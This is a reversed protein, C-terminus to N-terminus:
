PSIIREYRGRHFVDDLTNFALELVILLVLAEPLVLVPMLSSMTAGALASTSRDCDVGDEAPVEPIYM